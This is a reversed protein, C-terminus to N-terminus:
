VLGHDLAFRIMEGVTNVNLKAIINKRHFKVTHKSIFLEEAIQQNTNGQAVLKLVEIERKSLMKEVIFKDKVVLDIETMLDRTKRASSITKGLLVQYITDLLKERSTNKSLFSVGLKAAERRFTPTDYSTFVIIKLDPFLSVLKPISKLTNNDQMNVDLILLDTKKSKLSPVLDKYKLVADCIELKEEHALMETLGNIIVQHDDALLLQYAKM